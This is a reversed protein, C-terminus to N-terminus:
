VDFDLAVTAADGDEVHESRRVAAKVPLLYSSSQTDAFV